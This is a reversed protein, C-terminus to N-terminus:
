VVELGARKVIDMVIEDGSKEETIKKKTDLIEFFRTSMMSGGAFKATNESILKLADTVYIRFAM